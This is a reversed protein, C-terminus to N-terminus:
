NSLYLSINLVFGSKGSRIKKIKPITKSKGNANMSVRKFIFETFSIQSSLCRTVNLKKM